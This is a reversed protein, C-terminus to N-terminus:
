PYAGLPLQAGVKAIFGVLTRAGVLDANTTLLVGGHPAM